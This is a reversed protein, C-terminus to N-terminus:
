QNLSQIQEHWHLIANNNTYYKNSPIRTTIKLKVLQHLQSLGNIVENMTLNKGISLDTLHSLGSLYSIDHTRSHLMNNLQHTHNRCRVSLSQLSTLQQISEYLVVATNSQTNSSSITYFAINLSLSQLNTLSALQKLSSCEDSRIAGDISVITTPLYQIVHTLAWACKISRLATFYQLKCLNNVYQQDDQSEQRNNSNYWTISILKHQVNNNYMIDIMDTTLPVYCLTLETLNHLREFTNHIATTYIDYSLDSDNYMDWLSVCVNTICNLWRSNYQISHIYDTNCQITIQKNNWVVVNHSANYLQRNCQQVALTDNLTCYTYISHLLVDSLETLMKTELVPICQAARITKNNITNNDYM